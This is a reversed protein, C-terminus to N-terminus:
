FVTLYISDILLLNVLRFAPQQAVLYIGAEGLRKRCQRVRVAGLNNIAKDLLFETDTINGTDDTYRFRGHGLVQPYQAGEPQDLRTLFAPHHVIGQVILVDMGQQVNAQLM